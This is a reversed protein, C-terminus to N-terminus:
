LAPCGWGGASSTPSAVRSRMESPSRYGSMSSPDTPRAKGGGCGWGNIATNPSAVRLHEKRTYPAVECMSEDDGQVEEEEIEEEEEGVHMDKAFDFADQLEIRDGLGKEQVWKWVKKAPGELISKEPGTVNSSDVSISIIQDGHEVIAWYTVTYPEIASSPASRESGSYTNPGNNAGLNPANRRSFFDFAPESDVGSGLEEVDGENEKPDEGPQGRCNGFHVHCDDVHGWGGGDQEISRSAHGWCETGGADLDHGRLGVLCCHCQGPNCAGCRISCHENSARETDNSGCGADADNGWAHSDQETFSDEAGSSENPLVEFSVFALSAPDDNEKEALVTRSQEANSKKTIYKHTKNDKDSKRGWGRSKIQAFRKECEELSVGLISSANYWCIGSEFSRWHLLCKDAEGSWVFDHVWCNHINQHATICEFANVLQVTEKPSWAVRHRFRELLTKHDVTRFHQLNLLDMADRFWPKTFANQVITSTSERDTFSSRDGQADQKIDSSLDSWHSGMREPDNPMTTRHSVVPKRKATKQNEDKTTTSSIAVNPRHAAAEFLIDLAKKNREYLEGSTGSIDRHTAHTCHQNSQEPHNPQIVWDHHRKVRIPTLDDQESSEPHKTHQKIVASKVEAHPETAYSGMAPKPTTSREPSIVASDATRSGVHDLCEDCQCWEDTGHPQEEEGDNPIGWGVSSPGQEVQEQLLSDYWDPKCHDCGWDGCIRCHQDAAVAEDACHNLTQVPSDPTVPRAYRRASAVHRDQSRMQAQVEELTNLKPSVGQVIRDIFDQTHESLDKDPSANLPSFQTSPDSIAAINVQNRSRAMTRGLLKRLREVNVAGRSTTNGRADNIPSQSVIELSTSWKKLDISTKPQQNAAKDDGELWHVVEVPGNRDSYTFPPMVINNNQSAQCGKVRTRQDQNERVQEVKKVTSRKMKVLDRPLDVVGAVLSGNHMVYAGPAAEKTRSDTVFVDAKDLTELFEEKGCMTKPPNPRMAETLHKLIASSVASGLPNGVVRVQALTSNWDPDPFIFDNLKPENPQEPSSTPVSAPPTYGPESSDSDSECYAGPPRSPDM